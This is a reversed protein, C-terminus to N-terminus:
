DHCHRRHHTRRWGDGYYHGRPLLTGVVCDIIVVGAAIKPNRLGDAKLDRVWQRAEVLTWELRAGDKTGPPLNRKKATYAIQTKEIGCLEALEASNFTVPKKRAEPALMNSRVQQVVGTAREAIEDLVALNILPHLPPVNKM